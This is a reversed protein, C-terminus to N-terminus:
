FFRGAILVGALVACMLHSLIQGFETSAWPASPADDERLTLWQPDEIFGFYILIRALLGPDPINPIDDPFIYDDV